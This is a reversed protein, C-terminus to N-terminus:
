NKKKRSTKKKKCSSKRKKPSPEEIRVEDEAMLLDKGRFEVCYARHHSDAYVDDWSRMWTIETLVKGVDGAVIGSVVCSKYFTCRTGPKAPKAWLGLPLSKEQKELSKRLKYILQNQDQLRTRDLELHDLKDRQIWPM